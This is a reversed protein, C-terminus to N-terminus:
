SNVPELEATPEPRRPAMTSAADRDRISLVLALGCILLGAGVYFATHYAGLNARVRGSSHRTTGVVALVTGMVAVGLASGIQRIANYLTSGRGTSAAPITAFAATQNPIFINAMFFGLGFMEVRMLWPNTQMGTQALLVLLVPVVLIGGAMIRRPGIHPYLRGVVQAGLMVGFAEPFTSLGAALPSYGLGDQLMLPFVYLSGLFTM